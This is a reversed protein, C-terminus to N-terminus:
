RDQRPRAGYRNETSHNRSLPGTQGLRRSLALMGGCRLDRTKFWRAATAWQEPPLGARTEVMPTRESPIHKWTERPKM